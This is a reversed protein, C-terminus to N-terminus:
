GSPLPVVGKFHGGYHTKYMCSTVLLSAPLLTCLLGEGRGCEAHKQPPVLLYHRLAMKDYVLHPSSPSTFPSLSTTTSSSSPSFPSLPPSEGAANLCLSLIM